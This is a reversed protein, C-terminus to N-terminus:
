EVTITGKMGADYHAPEHCGYIMEGADTFTWTIEKTEGAPIDLANAEDEMHMGSGSEAMQQMEQEHEQQEEQTGLVFEHDNQGANHVRFTVTEGAKVTVSDPEFKLTDLAEIDITRDADAPDGPHGFAFSEDGMDMSESVDTSDSPETATEDDDDGGCAIFLTATVAIAALLAARMLGDRFM